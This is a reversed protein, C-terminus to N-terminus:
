IHRYINGLSVHSLTSIETNKLKFTDPEGTASDHYLYTTNGNKNNFRNVILTEKSHSTDIHPFM